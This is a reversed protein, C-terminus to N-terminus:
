RRNHTSISSNLFFLCPKQNQNGNLGFTLLLYYIIMLWLPFQIGNIAAAPFDATFGVIWIIYFLILWAAWGILIGLPQFAFFAVIAVFGVLMVIPIFPLVLMNTLISVISLNGFHYLILPATTIQAALTPFLFNKMWEYKPWLEELKPQVFLLGALAVFSLQFGIDYLLIVPNQFLMADSTLVLANVSSYLRGAHRAFLALSGMIGARVVSASAGTIIVFATIGLLSLYFSASRGFRRFIKDLFTAVITINFGSVAIIHSTGTTRFNDLLEEPMKRTGLLLGGLLGSQPEPLFSGIAVLFNQKFKYLYKKPGVKNVATKSIKPLVLQASINDKRNFEPPPKLKGKGVLEQGYYYKPYLATTVSIPAEVIQDNIKYAEALFIQSKEKSEPDTTIAFAMEVTEDFYESLDMPKQKSSWFSSCIFILGAIGFVLNFRSSWGLTLLIIIFIACIVIHIPQIKFGIGLGLSVALCFLLFTQSKSFSM